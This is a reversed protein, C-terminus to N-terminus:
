RVIGFAVEGVLTSLPRPCLLRWPAVRSPPGGRPAQEGKKARGAALRGLSPGGAPRAPACAQGPAGRGPGGERGGRHPAIGRRATAHCALHATGHRLAVRCRSSVTRSSITCFVTAELSRRRRPPARAAPARASPARLLVQFQLCASTSSSARSPRGFSTHRTEDKKRRRYCPRARYIAPELGPSM